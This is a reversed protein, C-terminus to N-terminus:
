IARGQEAEIQADLADATQCADGDGNDCKKAAKDRERAMKGLREERQRMEKGRKEDAESQSTTMVDATKSVVKIPATVVEKVVSAVCGQLLLVASVCLLLRM